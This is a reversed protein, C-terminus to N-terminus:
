IDYYAFFQKIKSSVYGPANDSKIQVPIGIITMAELLDAIISDTKESSLCNGM